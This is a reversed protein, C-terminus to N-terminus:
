SDLLCCLGRQKGLTEKKFHVKPPLIGAAKFLFHVIRGPSVDDKMDLFLM